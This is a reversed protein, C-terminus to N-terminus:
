ERFRMGNGNEVLQNYAQSVQAPHGRVVQPASQMTIKEGSSYAERDRVRRMRTKAADLFGTLAREFMSWSHPKKSDHAKAYALTADVHNTFALVDAEAQKTDFEDEELTNALQKAMRSAVMKHWLLNKGQVKEVDALERDLRKDNEASILKSFADSAGDFAVLSKWLAAHMRKGNAFKDDQYDKRDYYTDAENVVPAAAKVAEVYATAATDLDALAPPTKAAKVAAECKEVDSEDISSLGYVNREKGTPGAELDKVWSAYREMVQRIPRNNANYCDIYADLKGDALEQASEAEAAKEEAASVNRKAESKKCGSAFMCLAVGVFVWKLKPLSLKPLSM